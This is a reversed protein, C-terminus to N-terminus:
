VGPYNYISDVGPIFPEGRFNVINDYKTCGNTGVTHDCGPEITFTDGGAPAQPMPLYLTLTAGDWTKIEFSQGELAGSNFTILGDNFWGAVANEAPNESGVMKLGAAPVITVGSPASAVTGSQQYLTVDVMCLDKAYTDIGNLGSGFQARCVPGYTEGLYTTLKYTLGRIEATFAGNQMKVIGLTGARLLVDGMTLDAWNVLRIEIIADDYLGARLDAEVLSQSELFGTVEMNDVSLDSKGATATSTFGTSHLYTVTDEGSDTYVIDQDHTTFGLITGDTRKIKWLYAVTMQGGALHAQLASSAAKM